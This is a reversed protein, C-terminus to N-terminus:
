NYYCFVVIFLIALVSLSVNMDNTTQRIFDYVLM